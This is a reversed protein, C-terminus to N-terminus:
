MKRSKKNDLKHKRFSWAPDFGHQEIKYKDSIEDPEKNQSLTGGVWMSLEQFATFPDIAKAFDIKFLQPNITIQEREWLVISLNNNVMFDSVDEGSLNFYDAIGKDSNTKRPFYETIHKYPFQKEIRKLEKRFAEENWFYKITYDPIPFVLKIGRYQKGCFYVSIRHLTPHTVKNWIYTREDWPSHLVDTGAYGTTHIPTQKFFSRTDKAATDILEEKRNFIISADIGESMASDYYDHYSSIIRM